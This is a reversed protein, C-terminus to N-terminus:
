KKKDSHVPTKHSQVPRHKKGHAVTGSSGAAMPLVSPLRRTTTAKEYEADDAGWTSPDGLESYVAATPVRTGEYKERKNNM